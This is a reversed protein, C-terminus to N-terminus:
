PILGPQNGPELLLAFQAARSRSLTWVEGFYPVVVRAESSTVVTIEAYGQEDTFAQAIVRNTGVEVVRVPIDSVGEAPDVARNGNEDYAIVVSATIEGPAPPSATPQLTPPAAVLEVAAPRPTPSPTATNVPPPLILTDAGARYVQVADLALVDDSSASNKRGTGRLELRHEGPGVFYVQTGPFMLDTNYADVTDIVRGDVVIEFIGLNRAAVYRIRLGEGTFTLAAVGSHSAIRHYQGRSAEVHLRPTWYVPRYQVQPHDSEFTVWGEYPPPQQTANPLPEFPQPPAPLLTLGSPFPTATPPMVVGPMIASLAIVRDNLTPTYTPTATFTPTPTHTATPTNSPTLTITATATPTFTASPTLSPLVAVTPIAAIQRAHILNAFTAAALLGGVLGIIALVVLGTIRGVRRM